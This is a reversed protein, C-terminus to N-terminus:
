AAARWNPSAWSRAWVEMVAAMLIDMYARGRLLGADSLTHELAGAELVHNKQLVGDLLLERLFAKNTVAMNNYFHVMEGKTQRAYISQPIRGKFAERALARNVGGFTLLDAPIRLCTELLPQSLLPHVMDLRQARLCPQFYAECSAVIALHFRKAPPMDETDELWPHLYLANGQDQEVDKGLFAPLIKKHQSPLYASRGTFRWRLVDLLVHTAPTRSFRSAARIISYLHHNIGHRAVYDHATIETRMQYFYADGGQGTFIAEVDHEKANNVSWFQRELGINDFPPRVSRPLDLLRNLAVPDADMEVELYKFDTMNSVDRAFRREDGGPAPSFHNIMQIAPPNKMNALCAAVIASDLGGSLELNHADYCSAWAQICPETRHRIAEIAAGKDEIVDTRCFPRPDWLRKLATNEKNLPTRVAAWPNTVGVFGTKHSILGRHRLHRGIEQWDFTFWDTELFPAIPELDSCIFTIGQSELHFADIAGTPDRLVFYDNDPESRIFAVYRGWFKEVLDKGGTGVIARQDEPNLCSLCAIGSLNEQYPFLTGLVVGDEDGLPYPRWGKRDEGQQLVVLNQGRFVERWGLKEHILDNCIFNVRRVLTSDADRWYMAVYRYM